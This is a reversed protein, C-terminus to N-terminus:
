SAVHFDGLDKFVGNVGLGVGYRFIRTLECPQLLPVTRVAHSTLEISCTIFSHMLIIVVM